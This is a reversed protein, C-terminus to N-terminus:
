AFIVVELVRRRRFTPAWLFFTPAWGDMVSDHGSTSVRLLLGHDSGSDRHGDSRTPRHCCRDFDANAVVVHEGFCGRVICEAIKKEDCRFLSGVLVSVVKELLSQPTKYRNRKSSHNGRKQKVSPLDGSRLRSGLWEIALFHKPRPSTVGKNRAGVNNRTRSGKSVPKPSILWRWNHSGSSPLNGYSYLGYSYLGYSYLGGTTAELRRCVAMVIYAM